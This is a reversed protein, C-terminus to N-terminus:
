NTMSLGSRLAMNGRRGGYSAGGRQIGGSSTQFDILVNIILKILEITTSQETPKHAPASASSNICEIAKPWTVSEVGPVGPQNKRRLSNGISSRHCVASWMTASQRKALKINWDLTTSQRERMDVLRGGWRGCGSLLHLRKSYFLRRM